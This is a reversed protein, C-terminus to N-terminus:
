TQSKDLLEFISMNRVMCDPESNCGLESRVDRQDSHAQMSKIINEATACSTFQGTNQRPDFQRSETEPETTAPTLTSAREACSGQSDLIDVNGNVNSQPISTKSSITMLEHPSSNLEKHPPIPARQLNDELKSSPMLYSQSPISNPPQGQSELYGKIQTETVGHLMLLSRLLINETAVKKGAAQVEQTATVGLREFSRLRQELDHIYEKRRTRSRRQNDRIRASSTASGKLNEHQKTNMRPSHPIHTPTM